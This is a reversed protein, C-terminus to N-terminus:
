TLSLSSESIDSEQYLDIVKQVACHPHDHICTVDIYESEKNMKKTIQVKQLLVNKPKFPFLREFTVTDKVFWSNFKKGLLEFIFNLNTYPVTGDDWTLGNEQTSNSIVYRDYPKLTHTFYPPRLVWVHFVRGEGCLVAIEKFIFKNELPFGQISLFCSQM